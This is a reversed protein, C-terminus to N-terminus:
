FLKLRMYGIHVANTVSNQVGKAVSVHAGIKLIHQIRHAIPMAPEKTKKQRKRKPKTPVSEEEGNTQPQEVRDEGPKDETTTEPKRKRGSSKTPKPSKSSNVQNSPTPAIAGTSDLSTLSSSDSLDKRM